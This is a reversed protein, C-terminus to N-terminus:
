LIWVWGLDDDCCGRPMRSGYLLVIRVAGRSVVCYKWRLIDEIVRLWWNKVVVGVWLWVRCQVERPEGVEGGRMKMWPVGQDERTQCGKARDREREKWTQLHLGQCVQGLLNTEAPRSQRFHRRIVHCELIVKDANCCTSCSGQDGKPMKSQFQSLNEL